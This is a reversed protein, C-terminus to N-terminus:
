AGVKDWYDKCYNAFKLMETDDWEVAVSMGLLTPDIVGRIQFPEVPGFDETYIKTNSTSFVRTLQLIVENRNETPRQIVVLDGKDIADIVQEIKIM